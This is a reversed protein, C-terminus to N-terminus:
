LSFGSSGLSSGSSLKISSSSSYSATASAKSSYRSVQSNSSNTSSYATLLPHLFRSPLRPREKTGTVFLLELAEKARTMAVYFMRREEEVEEEQLMRGYPFNGENVDALFVKEFELGKSAHVTMLQIKAAETVDKEAGRWKKRFREQGELWEQWSEFNKSDETLWNLIELCRERKQAEPLKQKIYGEYGMAKRLYQIGLYPKMERIRNLEKELQNLTREMQTVAREKEMRFAYKEEMSQEWLTQRKYYERIERFSVQEGTLAERWIGRFPKNMFRLFLSRTHEGLAFRVYATIDQAAFYDYPCQSREKMSYPIGAQELSLAFSQMLFNTRFLVACYASPKRTYEDRIRERLYQYQAEKEEFSNIIVAEREGHAEGYSRIEKPFRRTNEAIVTGAAKVIEPCSRYNINLLVQGAHPYDQLFRKMLDPNSGRFSYISQDDDGVAFINDCSSGLLRVVQYQIPNIDQFEDLLIHSFRNQWRKRLSSDEMLLTRCDYVMDDFDMGRIQRRRSEYEAFIAAFCGQWGAELKGAAAEQNGTNKYFSVAGLLRQATEVADEQCEGKMSESLLQTYPPKRLISLFIQKKQTDNILHAKSIAGSQRLIQYFVSHFTGFNVLGAGQIGTNQALFRQQMSLAAEKTFTIVLIQEPKVQLHTILHTIRHTIVFTKGSGPGALVLLPGEGQMVAKRQAENMSDM